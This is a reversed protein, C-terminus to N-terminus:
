WVVCTNIGKGFYLINKNLLFTRKFVSHEKPMNGQKDFLVHHQCVCIIVKNSMTRITTSPVPTVDKRCLWRSQNICKNATLKSFFRGQNWFYFGPKKATNVNMNQTFICFIGNSFCMWHASAKFSSVSLVLTVNTCHFAIEVM